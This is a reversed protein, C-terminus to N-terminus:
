LSENKRYLIKKHAFYPLLIFSKKKTQMKNIARAWKVTALDGGFGSPQASLSGYALAKEM